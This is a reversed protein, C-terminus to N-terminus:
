CWQILRHNISPRRVVPRYRTAQRQSRGRNKRPQRLIEQTDGRSSNDADSTSLLEHYEHDNRGGRPARGSECNGISHLERIQQVNLLVLKGQKSQHNQTSRTRSSTSSASQTLTSNTLLSACQAIRKLWDSFHIITARPLIPLAHQAWELQKSLPLMSVLEDLLTSESLIHASANNNLFAVM